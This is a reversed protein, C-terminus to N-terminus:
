PIIITGEVARLKKAEEFATDAMTHLKAHIESDPADAEITHAVMRATRRAGEIEVSVAIKLRHKRPTEIPITKAIVGDALKVNHVKADPSPPRAKPLNAPM